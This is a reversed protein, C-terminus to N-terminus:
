CLRPGSNSPALFIVGIRSFKARARAPSEGALAATVRQVAAATAAAPCTAERQKPHMGSGAAAM